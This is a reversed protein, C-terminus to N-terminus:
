QAKNQEFKELRKKLDEAEAKRLKAPENDPDLRLVDDWRRISEELDQHRFAAMAKKTYDEVLEDRTRRLGQEAMARDPDLDVVKQYASHAEELQGSAEAQVANRYSEEAGMQREIGELENKATLNDPQAAVAKKLVDKAEVLRGQRRLEGAYPVCATVMLKRAEEDASDQALAAELEGIAKPYEEAAIWKKVEAYREPKVVTYTESRVASINGSADKAMFSLTTTVELPIPEGYLTSRTNPRRGDTTYYIAPTGDRDDSASLTVTVREEYTGGLPTALVSPATEDPPEAVVRKPETHTSAVSPAKKDTPAPAAEPQGGAPAAPARRTAPTELASTKTKPIRITQGRKLHRPTEIRNYRALVYFMLEDGLFRESIKSLTDDPQVVYDFSEPGFFSDIPEDIQRLISAAAKDDPHRCLALHAESEATKPDGEDLARYATYIHDRASSRNGPPCPFAARAPPPPQPPSSEPPRQQDASARPAVPVSQPPSPSPAAAPQEQPAAATEKPAPATACASAFAFLVVLCKRLCRNLWTM